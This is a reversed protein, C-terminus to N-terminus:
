QMRIFDLVFCGYAHTGVVEVKWEDGNNTDMYEHFLRQDMENPYALLRLRKLSKCGALLQVIGEVSIIDNELTIEALNPLSTILQTIHESSLYYYSWYSLMITLKVLNPHKCIFGLMLRIYDETIDTYPVEELKILELEDLNKFTICPVICTTLKKINMIVNCLKIEDGDFSYMLEIHQLQTSHKDILKGFTKSSIMFDDDITLRSIFHGFYEFFKTVFVFPCDAIYIRECNYRTKSVSEMFHGVSEGISIYHCDIKVSKGRFKRKAALQAEGVFNQHCEAINFLDSLPLHEFISELCYDNLDILKLTEDEAESKDQPPSEMLKPIKQPIEDIYDSTHRKLNRTLEMTRSM